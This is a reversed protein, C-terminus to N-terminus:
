SAAEGRERCEEREDDFEQALMEVPAAERVDLDDFEAALWVRLRRGGRRDRAGRNLRSLFDVALRGDDIRNVRRAAGDAREAARLRRRSRDDREAEAVEARVRVAGVLVYAEVVEDAADFVETADDLAEGM